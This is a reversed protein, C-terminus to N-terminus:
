TAYNRRECGDSENHRERYSARLRRRRIWLRCSWVEAHLNPTVDRLIETLAHPAVDRKAALQFFSERSQHHGLIRSVSPRLASRASAFFIRAARAPAFCPAIKVGVMLTSNLFIRRRMMFAPVHAAMMFTIRSRM